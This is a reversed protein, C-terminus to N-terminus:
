DELSTVWQEYELDNALMHEGVMRAAETADRVNEYPVVAQEGIRQKAERILKRRLNADPIAQWTTTHGPLGSITTPVFSPPAFALVPHYVLHPCRCVAFDQLLVRPPQNCICFAM